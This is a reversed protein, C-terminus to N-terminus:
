IRGDKGFTERCFDLFYDIKNAAREAKEHLNGNSSTVSYRDADADPDSLNGTNLFSKVTVEVENFLFEAEMLGTALREGIGGPLAAADPINFVDLKARTTKCATDMLTANETVKRSDSGPMAAAFKKGEDGIVKLAQHVEAIPMFIYAAVLRARASKEKRAIHQSYLVVGVAAVAAAFAGLGAAWAGQDAPSLSMWWHPIEWPLFSYGHGVAKGCEPAMEM